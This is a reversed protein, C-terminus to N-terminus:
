FKAIIGARAGAFQMGTVPVLHYEGGAEVSLRANVAYELGAGANLGAQAAGGLPLYVGAGAQLYASLKGKVTIMARLDASLDLWTSFSGPLGTPFLSYGGLAELLLWPRLSVGFDLLARAGATTGAPFGAIPIATGAHVSAVVAHEQSTIRTTITASQGPPISIRYTDRDVKRLGKGALEWYWKGVPGDHSAIYGFSGVPDYLEYRHGHVVIFKGTARYGECTWTLRSSRGLLGPKVAEQELAAESARVRLIFEHSQRGEPAPGYGATGIEADRMFVSARVFDMNRTASKRSFVVETTDSTSDLEVMMCQHPHTQYQPRLADNVSWQLEFTHNAGADIQAVTAPNAGPEGSPVAMWEDLGPIGWNALRYLATVRPAPVPSDGRTMGNHATAQLTNVFGAAPEIYSDPTNTTRLDSMEIWVGHGIATDAKDAYGWEATSFPYTDFDGSVWPALLPWTFESAVTSFDRIINMYFLMQDALVLTETPSIQLSVPLRMELNWTHGAPNAAVKLALGPDAPWPAVPTWSASDRSLHKATPEQGAGSGTGAGVPYIVFRLDNAGGAPANRDPRIGVVVIDDGNFSLDDTVEFSFYLSTGDRSKVGQFAVPTHGTGNDYTIRAAGNWGPDGSVTGDVTPPVSPVPAVRPFVIQEPVAATTITFNYPNEDSDNNTISVTGTASGAATPTFRITFPSPTGLHVPTAPDTGQQAFGAGSISVRPSGTLRLEGTASNEITVGIDTHDGVLTTGALAYSTGDAVDTGNVKVNMEPAIGNGRVTFDYTGEDFDTNDITVTGTAIGAATPTFTISSTSCSGVSVPTGPATCHFPPDTATISDIGLPGAGINAIQIMRPASTTGVLQSGFDIVNSAGDPIETGDTLRVVVEPLSGDKITIRTAVVLPSDTGGDYSISISGNAVTGDTLGSSDFRIRFTPAAGPAITGAPLDTVLTFGSADVRNPTGTPTLTASGINKAALTFVYLTDPPRMGLDLTQGKQAEACAYVLALDAAAAPLAAALVLAILGTLVIGRRSM